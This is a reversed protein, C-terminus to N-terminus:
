QGSLAAVADLDNQVNVSRIVGSADAVYILGPQTLKLAQAFAGQAGAADYIQEGPLNAAAAKAAGLDGSDLCVGIAATGSPAGAATAKARLIGVRDASVWTYLLVAHGQTPSLAAAVDTTRPAIASLAQGRLALRDALHQAETRVWDPTGKNALLEQVLAAGRKVSSDRAICLLSEYGTSQDPFEAILDRTASEYALLRDDRTLNPRKAIAVSDSLAFLQARLQPDISKDHRAQALVRNRRAEQSTDGALWARVLALGEECRANAAQADNPFATYFDKFRNADAVLDASPNAASAPVTGANQLAAWAAAAPSAPDASLRGPLALVLASALAVIFPTKM